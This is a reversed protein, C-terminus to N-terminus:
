SFSVGLGDIDGPLIRNGVLAYSVTILLMFVWVDVIQPITKFLARMTRSVEVSEILLKIPRLLRSFRFYSVPYISYFIIADIIFCCTWITNGLFKFGLMRTIQNTQKYSYLRFYARFLMDATYFALILFEIVGVLIFQRSSREVSNDNSYSPEFFSILLYLWWVYTTMEQMYPHSRIFYVSKIFTGEEFHFTKSDRFALNYYEAAYKTALVKSYKTTNLIKIFVADGESLSNHSKRQMEHEALAM